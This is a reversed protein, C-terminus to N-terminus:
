IWFILIGALFSATNLILSVIFARRNKMRLTYVLLKWEVFVVTIELFVILIIAPSILGLYDNLLVLFNLAPNTIVNIILVALLAHKNRLGLLLAAPTEVAITLVLAEAALILYETM